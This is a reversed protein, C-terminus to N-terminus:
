KAEFKGGDAEADGDNLAFVCEDLYKKVVDWNSYERNSKQKDKLEEYFKVLIQGV